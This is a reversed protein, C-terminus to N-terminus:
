DSQVTFSITAPSGSAERELGNLTYKVTLSATIVAGDAMNNYNCSVPAPNLSAGPAVTGTIATTFPSPSANCTLTGGGANTVDVHLSSNSLTAAALGFNNLNITYTATGSVVGSTPVGTPANTYGFGTIKVIPRNNVFTGGAITADPAALTLERTVTTPSPEFGPPAATEHVTYRGLRLGTLQFQGPAPNRDAGPGVIGDTDDVVSVCVDAIDVFLGTQTNFNHTRCVQFTAGGQLNGANDNKVWALSGAVFVKVADRSSGHTTDTARTLTVGGVSFSVTAHGTVTGATNSTFTVTCQGNANTGTAACTNTFVIAVAGGTNTLTVTPTTGTPAPGFGSVGDGGPAGVALGDNQLVTVTFTHLEGVSNVDDPAISITAEVFRKVADGTSGHTTDTARTLSVGSVTFTVTAHGTVTGATNSTFTVTCQGTANTGTTACTNASVNQVAGNADTLSVTPKTGAPAPGFGPVGDGGQAATLGDNQQVTVTFTHSAGVENVDDPAISIKAEVFRKVADGSSGHTTDTARTLSVGGVGFTVTAHGTVTGATNSTFSVTCQGAANTGTTACTNSAVVSVAGNADNLTVTPHTGAPAPGFGTVGDGGQAATLGDDQQVTVTFTHSDGVANVDDPAISIKAEVFRKLADGTSGHTTDTARTLSV